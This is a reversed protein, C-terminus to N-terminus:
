DGSPIPRYINKSYDHAFKPVRRRAFDRIHKFDVLYFCRRRSLIENSNLRTVGHLIPETAIKMHASSNILYTRGRYFCASRYHFCCATRADGLHFFYGTSTVCPGKSPRQTCSGNISSARRFLRRFRVTFLWLAMVLEEDFRRRPIPFSGTRHDFVM